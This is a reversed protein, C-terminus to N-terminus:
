VQGLTVMAGRRASEYVALVLELANRAEVGSVLPERGEEIAALLDAIQVRHGDDGIATPDNAGGVASPEGAAAVGSARAAGYPGVEGREELLECALMRGDEVVVSGATGSVELRERFGPYVATSVELSGVAGSSFRLLALAVDEVEIEHSQTACLATVERVPGMVWRLLDAYHVGQNILAGGGDLAWTGRWAASDYYGQSRYWKVRIDGLVVRGLAGDALLRRLAVVGPDFRHQSVVALSVGASRAADILRDAAELSIDIPKEVLLHKGAEAAQVGVEAHQGSPVCVSVVDVDDRLLLHELDDEATCGHEAAFAEAREGVVDTVAVLRANDLAALAAAHRPGIVGCGVLGFGFSRTM